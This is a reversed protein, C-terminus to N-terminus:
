YEKNLDWFLVRGDIGSTTFHTEDTVRIDNIINQHRSQLGVKGGGAGLTDQQKFMNQSKKFASAKKTTAAASKGTDLPGKEKWQGNEFEYIIPISDYGAGVAKTETLFEISRLPLDRRLVTQVENGNAFSGFHVTSDHGCFAFNAGSGSFRCAEVWGSSQDFKMLPAGFKKADSESFAQGYKDDLKCESDVEEIFASFITCTFDCGGAILFLNDPSWDVSTISSRIGKKIMKAVWMSQSEEYHCVPIQKSGSGVAFKSGNPSWKICTAARGIRLIVLNPKWENDELTWVYANRDQSSTAIANTTHNWDIGTVIFAHEALTHIKKWKKVDEGKADYIFVSTSNPAIALQDHSENWAHATICSQFVPESM